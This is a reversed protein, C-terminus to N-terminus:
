PRSRALRPADDAADLVRQAFISRVQDSFPHLSLDGAAYDAAAEVLERLALLGGARHELEIRLRQDHGPIFSGSAITGGCGCKCSPLTLAPSLHALLLRAKSMTEPDLRDSSSILELADRSLGERVIRRATSTRSRRSQLTYKEPLFAAVEENSRSFDQFHDFYRVFVEKGVSNLLREIRTPLM